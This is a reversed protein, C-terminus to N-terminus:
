RLDGSLEGVRHTVVDRVVADPLPKALESVDM